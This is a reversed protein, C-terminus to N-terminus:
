EHSDESAASRDRRIPNFVTRLVIGAGLAILLLPWSSGFTLGFLRLTSIQLWVGVTLLWFGAWVTRHRFIKSLGLFIVFLPWYHRFLFHLSTVEFRDLLFLTGIGVLALGWFLSDSDIPRKIDSM